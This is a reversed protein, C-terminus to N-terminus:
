LGKQKGHTALPGFDTQSELIRSNDIPRAEEGERKYFYDYYSHDGVTLALIAATKRSEATCGMRDM